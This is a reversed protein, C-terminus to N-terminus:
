KPTNDLHIPPDDKPTNIKLHIMMKHTICTTPNIKLHHHKDKPRDDDNQTNDTPPDDNQTIM